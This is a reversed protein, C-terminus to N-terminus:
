KWGLEREQKSIAKGYKSINVLNTKVDKDIYDFFIYGYYGYPYDMDNIFHYELGRETKESKMGLQFFMEKSDM